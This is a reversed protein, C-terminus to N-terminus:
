RVTSMVSTCPRPMATPRSFMVLGAPVGTTSCGPQSNRMTVMIVKVAPETSTMHSPSCIVSRPMPLPMESMMKQPMTTPMGRPMMWDKASMSAPSMLMKMAM